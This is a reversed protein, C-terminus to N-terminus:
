ISYFNGGLRIDQHMNWSLVTGVCSSQDILYTTILWDTQRNEVAYETFHAYSKRSVGISTVESKNSFYNICKCNEVVWIIRAWARVIGLKTM